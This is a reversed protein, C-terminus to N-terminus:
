KIIINSRKELYRKFLSHIIAIIVLILIIFGIGAYINKLMHSLYTFGLGAIFGIPIVFMLWILIAVADYRIFKRLELNNKSVYMILLIRTGALFKAFILSLFRSGRSVKDIAEAILSITAHAYRHSIIKKVFTTKGLLFWLIDSSMTGLFSFFLLPFLHLINQALLFGLTFLALEGGFAAGLFIVAYQLLSHNAVFLSIWEITPTM